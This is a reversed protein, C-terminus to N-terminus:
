VYATAKSMPIIRRLTTVISDAEDHNKEIVKDYLDSLTRVDDTSFADFDLESLFVATGNSMKCFVTDYLYRTGKNMKPFSFKDAKQIASMLQAINLKM